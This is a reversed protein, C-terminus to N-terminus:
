LNFDKKEYFKKFKININKPKKVTRKKKLRKLLKKNKDLWQIVKQLSPIKGKYFNYIENVNKYEQPYDVTLSIEPRNIKSNPHTLENTKFYDPRNLMWTMYESSNPDALMSHCKELIKLSIVESRVGFPISNCSTYDKKSKLHSKIMFDIIQPDTLPNDGTVRVINNARYKKAALIFRKMVDKADGRYIKVNIKKALIELKDDVKKKSTCWVIDSSLKSKKLRQTLQVILPKGFLNLLAKNKLRKSKLRVAVLIIAKNKM